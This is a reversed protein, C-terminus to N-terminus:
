PNESYSDLAGVAIIINSPLLFVGLTKSLVFFMAQGFM